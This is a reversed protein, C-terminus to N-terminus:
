MRQFQPSIFGCNLRAPVEFAYSAVIIAECYVLVVHWYGRAPRVAVLAYVFASVPLVLTLLSLDSLYAFVFLTYALASERRDARRPVLTNIWRWASGVGTPRSDIDIDHHDEVQITSLKQAANSIAPELARAMDQEYETLLAGSGSRPLNASSFIPSSGSAGNNNNSINTTTSPTNDIQPAGGGGEHATDRRADRRVGIRRRLGSMQVEPIDEERLNAQSARPSLAGSGMELFAFDQNTPNVGATFLSLSRDVGEKIRSIRVARAARQQSDRVSSAAQEQKWEAVEKKRAEREEEEEAEAVAVVERYTPSAFMHTQFRICIWLILDAIAGEYGWSLLSSRSSPSPADPSPSPRLKYLGLLHALTCSQLFNELFLFFYPM